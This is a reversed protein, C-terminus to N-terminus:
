PWIGTCRVGSVLLAPDALLPDGPFASALRGTDLTVEPQAGPLAPRWVVGVGAARALDAMAVPSPAALNVLSPPDDSTVAWALVRALDRPALYSRRPGQGDEFRDLTVQGGPRLNVFLSDAGAVNGIRLVVSAPLGPHRTHWAAIEAEMQAKSVGYATAPALRDREALFAGSGYVAASSCHVVRQAGLAVALDLATRALTANMSLASPDGRTVGWLAIVACVGALDPPPDGPQWCVDDAPRRTVYRPRFGAPPDATWLARVMRGLRGGAGLVLVTPVAGPMDHRQRM